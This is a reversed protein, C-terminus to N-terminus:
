REERDQREYEYHWPEDPSLLPGSFDPGAAEISEKLRTEWGEQRWVTEVQNSVAGAIIQGDKMIQFDIANARGHLTLGPAAISPRKEVAYAALWARRQQASEATMEKLDSEFKAQWAELIDAAALGVSTNSNWNAIQEDLSRVRTNAYIRYGPNAEAFHADVAAVAELLATQEPSGEFAEIEAASWSWRQALTEASRIYSRLALLKRGLDPIRSLAEGTPEPALTELPDVAPGDEMARAHPVWHLVLCSLMIIISLRLLVRSSSAM